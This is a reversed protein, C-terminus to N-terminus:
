REVEAREVRKDLEVWIGDAREVARYDDVVTELVRRLGVGRQPTELESQLGDADFPGVAATVADEGVVLEVTLDADESRRDLLTELATGLDDMLEYTFNLRASVGALVLQAVDEFGDAPPISVVIRDPSV